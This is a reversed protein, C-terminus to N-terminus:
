SQCLGRDSGFIIVLASEILSKIANGLVWFPIQGKVEAGESIEEQWNSSSRILITDPACSLSYNKTEFFYFTFFSTRIVSLFLNTDDKHTRKM